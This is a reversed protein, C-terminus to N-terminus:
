NFGLLFHCGSKEELDELGHSETGSPLVISWLWLGVGSALNVQKGWRM